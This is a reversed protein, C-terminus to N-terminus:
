REEATFIREFCSRIEHTVRECEALLAAADPYNLLRALKALETPDDPLTDRANSNMLRLRGEITRLLRYGRDLTQADETSIHGATCLASLAALTNPVRLSGTRGGHKGRLMPVLFRQKQDESGFGVLAEGVISPMSYQCGLVTGLPGFEELAAVEATWSLGRGGYETPFRIGYLGAAAVKAHFGHPFDIVERDLDKLLQPDIAEKAFIRAQLQVEREEPTLLVDFM